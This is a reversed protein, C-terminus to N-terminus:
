INKREYKEIADLLVQDELECLDGKVVIIPKEKPPTYPFEIFKRSCGNTWTGGGDDQFLYYGSHYAKGDADKFVESLRKNQYYTDDSYELLSWEEDNGTLPGLPKFMMAKDLLSKFIHISM